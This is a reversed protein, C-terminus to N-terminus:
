NNSFKDTVSHSACLDNNSFKNTVSHSTCQNNNSLKDTVSHSTCLNIETKFQKCVIILSSRHLLHITCQYNDFFNDTGSTDQICDYSFNDAM